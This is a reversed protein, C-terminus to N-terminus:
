ESRLNFGWVEHEGGRVALTVYLKGSTGFKSNESFKVPYVLRFQKTDGQHGLFESHSFGGQIISDFYEVLEDMTKLIDKKDIQAKSSDSFLDYVANYDRDNYASVFREYLEDRVHKDIHEPLANKSEIQTTPLSNREVGFWITAVLNAVLLVIITAYISKM